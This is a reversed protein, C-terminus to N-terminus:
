CSFDVACPSSQVAVRCARQSHNIEHINSAFFFKKNRARHLIARSSIEAGTARCIRQFFSVSIGETRCRIALM